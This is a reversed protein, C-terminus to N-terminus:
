KFNFKINFTEIERILKSKFLITWILEMDGNIKLTEHNMGNKLGILVVDRDERLTKNAYLMSNINQGVAALVIEKKQKLNPSAFELALGNSLVSALVVDVDKKLDKSAFKLLNGSKSVCKLTIEKDSQFKEPIFKFLKPEKFIALMVIEKDNQLSASAHLYSEPFSEISLKVLEKDNKIDKSLTELYSGHKSLVDALINSDNKIKECLTYKFNSSDLQIANLSISYDVRLADSAYQFSLPSKNIAMEVIKRNDKFIGAYQLNMSNKEVAMFAIEEDFKQCFKFAKETQNLAIFMISRDCKLESSAYELMSGNLKCLESIFDYDSFLNIHAHIWNEPLYLNMEKVCKIVFSKDNQLEPSTFFFSNLNQKLAINVIELDHKLINSTRHLFLGDFSVAKKTIEKKNRLESKLLPYMKPSLKMIMLGIEEDILDNSLYIFCDPNKQILMILTEKQFNLHKLKEFYQPRKSAIKLLIQINEKLSDNIFSYANMDNSIAELAIELDQQFEKTFFKILGGKKSAALMAIEKNKKLDDSIFRYYNPYHGIIQYSFEGDDRVDFPIKNLQTTFDIDEMQPNDEMMKAFKLIIEKDGILSVEEIFNFNPPYKEVAILVLERNKKLEKPFKEFTNGYNMLSVKAIQFDKKLDNDLTEYVLGNRSCVYLLVEYDKLLELPVDSVTPTRPNNKFTFFFNEKIKNHEEGTLPMQNSLYESHNSNILGVTYGVSLLVFLLSVSLFSTVIQWYLSYRRIFLSQIEM